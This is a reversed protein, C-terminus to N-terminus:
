KVSVKYKIRANNIASYSTQYESNIKNWEEIFTKLEKGNLGDSQQLITVYKEAQRKAWEPAESYQVNNNIQVSPINFFRNQLKHSLSAFLISYLVKGDKKIVKFTFEGARSKKRLTEVKLGLLNAAQNEDIWSPSKKIAQEENM